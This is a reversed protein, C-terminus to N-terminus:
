LVLRRIGCECCFKATEPFKSGCEHCFKSLKSRSPTAGDADSRGRNQRPHDEDLRGAVDNTSRGHHSYKRNLSSYASDGSFKGHDQRKYSEPSSLDEDSNRDNRPRRHVPSSVSLPDNKLLSKLSAFSGNDDDFSTMLEDFVSNSRKIDVDSSVISSLSLNSASMNAYNNNRNNLSTNSSRQSENAKDSSRKADNPSSSTKDLTAKPASSARVSFSRGVTPRVVKPSVKDLIKRARESSAVFSRSGRDHEDAIEGGLAKSKDIIVRRGLERVPSRKEDGPKAANEDKLYVERCLSNTETSDSSFDSALDDFETPPAILSSRKGPNLSTPCPYKVFASSHSLPFPAERNQALVPSDRVSQESADSLLDNMQQEALLFPNYDKGTRSSLVLNFDPRRRVYNSWVPRLPLALNRSRRFFASSSVPPLAPARPNRNLLRGPGQCPLDLNILRNRSANSAAREWYTQRSIAESKNSEKRVVIRTRKIEPLVGFGVNGHGIEEITEMEVTELQEVGDIMSLGDNSDNMESVDELFRNELGILRSYRSKFAASSSKKVTVRSESLIMPGLNRADFLLGDRARASRPGPMEIEDASDDSDGEFDKSSSNKYIEQVEQDALDIEGVVSSALKPRNAAVDDERRDAEESIARDAPFYVEIERYGAIPTRPSPGDIKRSRGLDDFSEGFSSRDVFREASADFVRLARECGAAQVAVDRSDRTNIRKEDERNENDNMRRAATSRRRGSTSDRINKKAPEDVIRRGTGDLEVRYLLESGTEENVAMEWENQQPSLSTEWLNEPEKWGTSHDFPTSSGSPRPADKALGELTQPEAEIEIPGAEIESFEAICNAASSSEDLFGDGESAVTEERVKEATGPRYLARPSRESFSGDVTVDNMRGRNSEGPADFRASVIQSTLKELIARSSEDETDGIRGDVDDRAEVDEIAGSAAVESSADGNELQDRDDQSLQGRFSLRKRELMKARRSKFRGTSMRRNLMAKEELSFGDPCNNVRSDGEDIRRVEEQKQCRSRLRELRDVDGVCFEVRPSHRVPRWKGRRSRADEAEDFSDKFSYTRNLRPTTPSWDASIGSRASTEGCKDSKNSKDSKDFKNVISSGDFLVSSQEARSDVLRTSATRPTNQSWNASIGCRPTAEGCKDSKNSKDFKHFKDGAISSGDFFVSSQEARSYVLRTSASKPTAQSWNASIGSGPSTEGCKDSKNSKDSKHSKNVISSGDFFVSSQEARSDVLRISASGASIADDEKDRGTRKWATPKSRPFISCPTVTMGTVEVNISVDNLKPHGESRASVINPMTSRGSHLPQGAESRSRCSPSLRGVLAAMKRTRRRPTSVNSCDGLSPKKYKLPPVPLLARKNPLAPPYPVAESEDEPPRNSRDMPRSKMPGIPSSKSPGARRVTAPKQKVPSDIKACNPASISEKARSAPQTPSTKNSHLNTASNPSYKERTIQRRNKLSPARYKMRAELREKAINTAPSMPARAIRDKCWAVHRDYAKVGFHRGCTPCVGQENARTPASSSLVTACQKQMAGDVIENRAARIQRLFDDHTQKWTSRNRDDQMQRRKEQKPLFEALETGQIRQKASDFPKRRKTANQECIRTHKELSQPMFTRACIACPLLASPVDPELDREIEAVNDPEVPQVKTLYRDYLSGQDAGSVTRRSVCCLM